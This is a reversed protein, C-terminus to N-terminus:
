VQVAPSATLVRTDTDYDIVAINGQPTAGVDIIALIKMSRRM